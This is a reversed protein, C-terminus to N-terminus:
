APDAAGAGAAEAPGAGSGDEPDDHQDLGYYSYARTANVVFLMTMTVASAVCWQCIALIEWLELYTLYLSFGFGFLSLVLAGIRGYDGNWLTAGLILAYGILGLISVHIGLLHSYESREVVSCGSGGGVCQPIENLIVSKYFVYGAVAIGLACLLGATIRLTREGRPGAQRLAVLVGVAAAAVIVALFLAVETPIGNKLLQIQDSM